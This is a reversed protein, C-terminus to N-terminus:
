KQDANKTVPAYFQRGLDYYIRVPNKMLPNKANVEGPRLINTGLYYFEVFLSKPREYYLIRVGNKYNVEV